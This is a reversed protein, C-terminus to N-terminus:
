LYVSLAEIAELLTEYQKYESLIGVRGTYSAWRLTYGDPEYEACRDTTIYYIMHSKPHNVAYEVVTYNIAWMRMLLDYEDDPLIESLLLEFEPESLTNM